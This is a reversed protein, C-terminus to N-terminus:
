RESPHALGQSRRWLKGEPRHLAFEAGAALLALASAATVLLNRRRESPTAVICGHRAEQARRARQEKLALFLSASSAAAAALLLPVRLPSRDLWVVLALLGSGAGASLSLWLSGAFAKGLCGGGLLALAFSSWGLVPGAPPPPPEGAPAATGEATLRYATAPERFGKLTLTEPRVGPYAAAVRAYAGDSVLIEGAKAQAQLRAAQNVVDGIATYDKVDDSGLRGVRAFGTAIGVSARLEQGLERSLAPLRKQLEQAAAVAAAAHDPRKVPVNFFAMVADGIFKDIYAGRASLVAAAERLYQDVVRHTEEAGLRNTLETFSSLDAFLMTLEVLRGEEIHMNCRTCCHPNRAGRRVGILSLLAGAAGSLPLGCVLCRPSLATAAMRM